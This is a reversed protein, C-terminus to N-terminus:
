SQGLRRGTSNHGSAVLPSSGTIPSRRRRQVGGKDIAHVHGHNMTMMVELAHVTAVPMMSPDAMAKAAVATAIVIAVYAM